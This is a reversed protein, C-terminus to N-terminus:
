SKSLRKLSDNQMDEYHMIFAKRIFNKARTDRKEKENYYEEYPVLAKYDDIIVFISRLLMSLTTATVYTKDSMFDEDKYSLLIDIIRIIASDLYQQNFNEIKYHPLKLDILNKSSKTRMREEEKDISYKFTINLALSAIMNKILKDDINNIDDLIIMFFVERIRKEIIEKLFFQQKLSEILIRNFEDNDLCYLKENMKLNLIYNINGLVAKNKNIGIIDSIIDTCLNNTAENLINILDNLQAYNMYPYDVYEQRQSDLLTNYNEVTKSILLKLLDYSEKKIAHQM